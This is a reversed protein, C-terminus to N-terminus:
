RFILATCRHTVSDRPRDLKETVAMVVWGFCTDCQWVTVVRLWAFFLLFLFILSIFVRSQLNPQILPCFSESKCSKSLKTNLCNQWIYKCINAFIQFPGFIKPDLYQYLSGDIQCYFGNKSRKHPFCEELWFM